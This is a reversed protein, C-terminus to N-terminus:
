KAEAYEGLHGARLFENVEKPSVRLSEMHKVMAVDQPTIKARGAYRESTPSLGRISAATSGERAAAGGGGLGALMGSGSAPKSSSLKFKYIWGKKGAALTECWSGQQSLVSVETGRPLQALVQATAAPSSRLDASPSANVYMKTAAWLSGSFLAGVCLFLM